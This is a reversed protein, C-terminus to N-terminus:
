LRAPLKIAGGSEHAQQLDCHGRLDLACPRSRAHSGSAARAPPLSTWCWGGPQSRPATNCAAGLEPMM